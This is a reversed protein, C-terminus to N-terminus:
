DYQRPGPGVGRSGRAKTPFNKLFLRPIRHSPHVQSHQLRICSWVRLDSITRRNLVRRSKKQVLCGFKRSQSFHVIQEVGVIIFQWRFYSEIWFFRGKITDLGIWDHGWMTGNGDFSANWSHPSCRRQDKWPCIICHEMSLLGCKM